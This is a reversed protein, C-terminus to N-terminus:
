FLRKQEHPKALTAIDFEECLAYNFPRNYLFNKVRDIAIHEFGEIQKSFTFYLKRAWPALSQLFIAERKLLTLDAETIIVRESAGFDCLAFTSDIFHPRFHSFNKLKTLDFPLNYQQIFGLALKLEETFLPSLRQREYLKEAYIFSIEFISQQIMKIKAKQITSANLALTHVFEQPAAVLEQDHYHELFEFIDGWFFAIKEDGVITYVLELALSPLTLITTRNEILLFRLLRRIANPLSDVKIWAVEEDSRQIEGEYVIAYAGNALAQSVDAKNRAFFLSGRKINEAKASFGTIKSIAPSNKLEGGILSPLSHLRM